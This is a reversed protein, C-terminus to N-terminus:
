MHFRFYLQEEVRDAIGQRQPESVWVLFV